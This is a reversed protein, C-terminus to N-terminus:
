PVGCDGEGYVIDYREEGDEDPAEMQGTARMRALELRQRELELRKESEEAQRLAGTLTLEPILM